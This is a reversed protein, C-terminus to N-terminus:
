LVKWRLYKVTDQIDWAESYAELELYALAKLVGKWLYLFFENRSILLVNKWFVYTINKSRTNKPFFYLFNGWPFM